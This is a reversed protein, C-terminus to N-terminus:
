SGQFLYKLDDVTLRTQSGGTEDEGFASSVMVRKKQQLLWLFWEINEFPYYGFKLNLEQNIVLYLALKTLDLFYGKELLLVFSAVYKLPRSAKGLQFLKNTCPQLPDAFQRYHKTKYVLVLIFVTLAM